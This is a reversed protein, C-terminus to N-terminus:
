FLPALPSSQLNQLLDGPDDYIAIAGAQRLESAAIGGSLLGVCELGAKKAALVDWVSDGVVLADKAGMDVSDLAAQFIDPAPKSADADGSSTADTIADDADIAKRLMELEDSDASSALLVTAGKAAVARLLRAADAFARVDPWMERYYQRHADGAIESHEGIVEDTFRDSGMGIHRHLVAMPVEHGIERLARSWAVAHLYNTDCLTGDVDFLVGSLSFAM